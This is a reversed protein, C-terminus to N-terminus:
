AAEFAARFWPSRWRAASNVRLCLSLSFPPSLVTTSAICGPSTLVSIAALTLKSQSTSPIILGLSLISHINFTIPSFPDPPISSPPLFLAAPSPLFLSSPAAVKQVHSPFLYGQHHSPLSTTYIQRFGLHSSYIGIPSKLYRGSDTSVSEKSPYHVTSDLWAKAKETEVETFLAGGMETSIRTSYIAFQAVMDNTSNPTNTRCRSIACM